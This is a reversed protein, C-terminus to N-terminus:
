CLLRAPSSAAMPPSAQPLGKVASSQHRSNIRYPPAAPTPVSPTIVHSLPALFATGRWRLHTGGEGLVAKQGGADPPWRALGKSVVLAAPVEKRHVPVRPPRFCHM